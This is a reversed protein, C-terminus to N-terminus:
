EQERIKRGAELAKKIVQVEDVDAIPWLMKSLTELGERYVTLEKELQELEKKHTVWKVYGTPM